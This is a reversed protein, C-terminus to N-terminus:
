RGIKVCADLLDFNIKPTIKSDFKYDPHTTVFKRMWAAPTMLAGSARQSIFTLYRSVATRVDQQMNITDMYINVLEILGTFKSGDEFTKGNFIENITM